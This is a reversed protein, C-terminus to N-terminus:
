QVRAGIDSFDRICANRSQGSLLKFRATNGGSTRALDALDKAEKLGLGSYARILKICNIFESGTSIIIISGGGHGTLMQMFLDLKLDPHITDSLAEWVQHATEAPSLEALTTLFDRSSNLLHQKQEPSLNPYDIM